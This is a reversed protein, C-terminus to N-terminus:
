KNTQKEKLKNKHENYVKLYFDKWMELVHEKSYFESIEKSYKSYKTYEKEHNMLM